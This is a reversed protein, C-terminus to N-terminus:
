GSLFFCMAEKYLKQFETYNIPVEDKDDKPDDKLCQRLSSTGWTDLDRRFNACYGSCTAVDSRFDECDLDMGSCTVRIQLNKSRLGFAHAFM